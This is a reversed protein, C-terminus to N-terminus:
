RAPRSGARSIVAASQRRRPLLQVLGAVAIALGVLYPISAQFAHVIGAGAASNGAANYFVIGIVAVGLANGVQQVSSLVGAATGADHPSLDALVTSTLPAMVIGMGVGDVIFAPILALTSAHADLRFMVLGLALVLAGIALAQRGLCAALKQAAISAVLFGISRPCGRRMGRAAVCWLGNV